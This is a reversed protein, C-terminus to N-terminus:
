IMRSCSFLTLYDSSSISSSTVIPRHLIQWFGLRFIHVAVNASLIILLIKIYKSLWEAYWKEEVYSGCWFYLTWCACVRDWWVSGDDLGWVILGEEWPCRCHPCTLRSLPFWQSLQCSFWWSWCPLVGRVWGKSRCAAFGLSRGMLCYLDKYSAQFYCMCCM